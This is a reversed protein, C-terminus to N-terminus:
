QMLLNIRMNHDVSHYYIYLVQQNIREKDPGVREMNASIPLHLRHGERRISKHARPDWAMGALDVGKTMTLNYTCDGYAVRCAMDVSSALATHLDPVDALRTAFTRYGLQVTQHSSFGINSYNTNYCAYM